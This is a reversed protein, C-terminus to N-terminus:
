IALWMFFKCKPLAWTKWIKSKLNTKIIGLFQAKYDSAATFKWTIQDLIELDFAVANVQEWLSIFDQLHQVTIEAQIDIVKISNNDHLAKHVSKNKKDQFTM